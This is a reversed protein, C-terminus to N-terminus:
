PPTTLTPEDPNTLDVRLLKVGKTRARELIASLVDMKLAINTGGGVLVKTGDELYLVLGGKERAVESIGARLAPSADSIIALAALVSPERLQAYPRSGVGLGTLYPFSGASGTPRPLLVGSPDIGYAVGSKTVVLAIPRRERVTIRLEHPFVRTMQASGYWPDRKLLLRRARELDATWLPQGKELGTALLISAPGGKVQVQRIALYPSALLRTTGQWFLLLLLLVGGAM